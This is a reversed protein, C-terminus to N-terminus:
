GTFKQIDTKRKIIKYVFWILFFFFGRKQLIYRLTKRKITTNMTNLLSDYLLAKISCTNHIHICYYITIPIKVFADITEYVKKLM